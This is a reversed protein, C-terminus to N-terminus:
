DRRKSMVKKYITPNFYNCSLIKSKPFVTTLSDLEELEEYFLEYDIDLTLSLTEVDRYGSLVPLITVYSNTNPEAGDVVFGVYSKRGDLTFQLLKPYKEKAISNFLIQDLDNDIAKKLSDTKDCLHNILHSIGFALLLSLLGIGAQFWLTPFNFCHVFDCFLKNAIFASFVLGAGIPMTTFLLHWNQARVVRYRILHTKISFLYGLCATLLLLQTM